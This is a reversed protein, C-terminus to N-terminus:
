LKSLANAKYYGTIVGKANGIQYPFAYGPFIKLIYRQYGIGGSVKGKGDKRSNGKAIIKVKDGVALPKEVPDLTINPCLLWGLWKYGSKTLSGTTANYKYIKGERWDKGSYGYYSSEITSLVDLVNGNKDRKVKRCILVHGKGGKGGSWCGIAGVVPYKSKKWGSNNYWDCANAKALDVKKYDTTEMYQMALGYAGSTCNPLLCRTKTNRVNVYKSYGKFTHPIYFKSDRSLILKLTSAKSELM